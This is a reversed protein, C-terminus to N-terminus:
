WNSWYTWYKRNYRSTRSYRSYRYYRTYWDYRSYWNCWYKRTYWDYRPFWNCRSTRSFRSYRYYRTYGQIGQLSLATNYGIENTSTNITLINTQSNTNLSIMKISGSLQLDGSSGSVVITEKNYQGIRVENDAFAEIVPLGAVTNVSFLSDSLDDSIEFLRGNNGDIAMITTNAGSGSGEVLLVDATGSIHAQAQPTSTGVGLM